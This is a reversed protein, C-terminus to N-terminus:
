GDLVSGRRSVQDPWEVYAPFERDIKRQGSTGACHGRL